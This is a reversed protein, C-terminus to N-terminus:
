AQAAGKNLFSRMLEGVKARFAVLAVLLATIAVFIAKASNSLAVVNDSLDSARQALTVKVPIDFERSPVIASDTDTGNPAEVVMYATLVLHHHPAKIATVNWEWRAADSIGVDHYQLKDPEIKFGEGKLLAAMRGTVKLTFPQNSAPPSSGSVPLQEGPAARRVSFAVMRTEGRTITSPYEVAGLGQRANAAITRAENCVSSAMFQGTVDCYVRSDTALLAPSPAASKAPMRVAALLATQGAHVHAHHHHGSGTRTGEDGDGGDGGDREGREVPAPPPPEMTATAPQGIAPVVAGVPPAESSLNRTGGALSCGVLAFAALSISCSAVRGRLRRLSDVIRSVANGM